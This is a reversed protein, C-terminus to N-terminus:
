IEDPAKPVLILVEKVATAPVSATVEVSQFALFPDKAFIKSVTGILMDPEFTASTLSTFVQDGLKLRADLPLYNMRLKETGQGQVLGEWRSEPFYAAVSSLDDTILRAQATHESLEIVRGVVGLEGEFLGLVPSNLEIGEASGASVTLSRHWGGPDRQMVRAWRISRIDAPTMGAAETLRENERKLSELEARLYRATKLELRARRLEVDGTILRAADAPLSSLQDFTKNGYYPLPNFLYVACARFAGVKGTLPLALM